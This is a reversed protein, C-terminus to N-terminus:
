WFQTIRVTGAPLHAVIELEGGLAQVIRNLTSVQMDDQREMKAVNPQKVGLADALDAQTLGALKRIESLLMDALLEQARAEAKRRTEPTTTKRVLEDFSKAM